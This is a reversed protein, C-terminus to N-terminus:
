KTDESNDLYLKTSIIYENVAEPIYYRVSKNAAVRDRIVSSSIQITPMNILEIKASYNQKLYESQLILQEMDVNDRCAAVVICHDFVTQPRMWYHMSLLSDAGEIFYYQVDTNQKSLDTLTDATYTMGERDLEITSLEFHENDQIALRLMDVRQEQTIDEPKHKHPPNKSPMFLVKDLALQEYANEALFLHGFHVPNFTGGMIGVKKM